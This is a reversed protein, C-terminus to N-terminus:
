LKLYYDKLLDTFATTYQKNSDHIMLENRELATGPQLSFIYQSRFFDHNVSQKVNLQQHIFFDNEILLQEFYNCRKYPILVAVKGNHNLLSKVQLLLNQLTLTSSHMAANREEDASKLDNEFFPPNSIIFDYKYATTHEAINCNFISLQNGWLSKSFNEEAQDAADKNLEVADISANMNQALMLSLLGTGTGIDLVQKINNDKSIKEAVWAGFLCADTCVKMACKDQQITFQKFQFYSNPM